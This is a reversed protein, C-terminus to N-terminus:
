PIRASGAILDLRSKWPDVIWGAAGDFAFDFLGADDAQSAPWGPDSGWNPNGRKTFNAVATAALRAMAADRPTLQDGYKAAVTNLFFPIDTAHPAGNPWESRMSEAVYSFRYLFTPHGLHAMLRATRRAPEVMLSDMAIDHGIRGVNGTHAPDYASEAEARHTGFRAYVADLTDGGGFGIDAGTAGVMFNRANSFGQAYVADPALAAMKGDVMPGGYTAKAPDPATMTAMNLGAVVKEAPLARLRKLAAADRGNIAVSQGFNMGVTEASPM